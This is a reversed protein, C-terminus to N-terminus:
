GRETEVRACFPLTSLSDIWAKANQARSTARWWDGGNMMWLSWADNTWRDLRRRPGEVLAALM